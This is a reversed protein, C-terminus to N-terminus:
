WLTWGGDIVLVHGTVGSTNESLLMDIPGFIDNETLMRGSPCLDSYRKLFEDNDNGELGGFAACNVRISKNALRVSLEKTLQELASKTVGYQISSENIPNDYLKLNPVVSGYISGINLVNKFSDSFADILSFTLQYPIVVGLKFENLFNESSARGEDDLKLYEINRANNILSDPQLGYDNINKIVKSISNNEMLDNQVLYLNKHNRNINLKLRDLLDGKRGVAIVTDGKDIFNKVLINGFRGTAGTIIITRSM